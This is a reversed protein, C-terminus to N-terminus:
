SSQGLLRESREPLGSSNPCDQGFERRVREFDGDQVLHRVGVQSVKGHHRLSMPSRRTHGRPVGSVLTRQRRVVDTSQGGMESLPGTGRM